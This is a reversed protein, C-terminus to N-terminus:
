EQDPTIYQLEFLYAVVVKDVYSTSYMAAVDVVQWAIQSFLMNTFGWWLCSHAVSIYQLLYADIGMVFFGFKWLLIFFM